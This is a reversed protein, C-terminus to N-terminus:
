QGTWPYLDPERIMERTLKTIIIKYLSDFGLMAGALCFYYCYFPVSNTLIQSM